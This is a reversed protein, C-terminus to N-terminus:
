LYSKQITEKIKEVIENPTTHAKIYFDRAGLNKARDREADGGLNSLVLVPIHSLTKDEGLHKLIGFGDISGPLTMDLLVLTPKKEKILNLGDDGTVAEITSYGEEQLKRSLMDRFFKDDEVILIVAGKRKILSALPLSSSQKSQDNEM